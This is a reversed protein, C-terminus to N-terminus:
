VVTAPEGQGTIDELCTKLVPKSSLKVRGAAPEAQRPTDLQRRGERWRARVLSCCKTFLMTCENIAIMYRVSHMCTATVGDQVIWLMNIYRDALTGRTHSRWQAAGKSEVSHATQCHM